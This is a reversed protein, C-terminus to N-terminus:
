ATQATRRRKGARKVAPKVTQKRRRIPQESRKPMEICSDVEDLFELSKRCWKDIFVKRNKIAFKLFRDDGGFSAHHHHYVFVNKAAALSYGAQRVRLCYDFDEFCGIEFREDLLGIRDVIERKFVFCFGVLRHIEFYENKFKMEMANSFIEFAKKNNEISKALKIRQLGVTRNTMPGVMGMGPKQLVQLMNKLWNGYFIIDSNVIAMYDGSAARIGQNVAKAFGLNRRNFIKVAKEQAMIYKKTQEDSDNDVLILEFPSDTNAYVSEVCKKLYSAGNHVPIIISTKNKNPKIKAM